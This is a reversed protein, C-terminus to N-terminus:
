PKAQVASREAVGNGPRPWMARLCRMKCQTPFRTVVKSFEQLLHTGIAQVNPSRGIWEQPVPTGVHITFKWTSDETIMCPILKAGAMQALHIAGTAMHFLRDEFPIDAMLGRNPDVMVLLRRGPGLIKRINSFRPFPTLESAFIFVPIEAPPSLSYQYNTLSKLAGPPDARVSTAQIGYARLWYPLLEFPGFHVSVLVIGRDDQSTELLRRDGEFRCRNLWRPSTLRDPWM